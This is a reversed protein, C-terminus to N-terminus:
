WQPPNPPLLANRGMTELFMCPPDMMWITEATPAILAAKLINWLDRLFIIVIIAIFVLIPFTQLLIIHLATEEQQVPIATPVVITDRIRQVEVKWAIRPMAALLIETM